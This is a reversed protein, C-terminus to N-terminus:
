LEEIKSSQQTNPWSIRISNLFDGSSDSFRSCGVEPVDCFRIEHHFFSSGHFEKPVAEELINRIISNRVTPLLNLLLYSYASYNEFRVFFPLTGGFTKTFGEIFAKQNLESATKQQELSSFRLRPFQLIGLPSLDGYSTAVFRDLDATNRFIQEFASAPTTTYEAIIGYHYNRESRNYKTLSSSVFITLNPLEPRCQFIDHLRDQISSLDCTADVCIFYPMNPNREAAELVARLKKSIEKMYEDQGGMGAYAADISFFFAQPDKSGSSPVKPSFDGENLFFYGPHVEIKSHDSIRNQVFRIVTTNASKGSLTLHIDSPKEPGFTFFKEYHLCHKQRFAEMAESNKEAGAVYKRMKMRNARVIAIQSESPSQVPTKQSTEVLGNEIFTPFIDQKLPSIASRSFHTTVIRAFETRIPDSSDGPLVTALYTKTSLYPIGKGLLFDSLEPAAKLASFSFVGIIPGNQIEYGPIQFTGATPDSLTLIGRNRAYEAILLDQHNSMDAHTALGNMITPDLDMLLAVADKQSKVTRALKKPLRSKPDHTLLDPISVNRLIM